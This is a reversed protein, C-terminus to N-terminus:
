WNSLLNPSNTCHASSRQFTTIVVQFSLFVSEWVERRCNGELAKIFRLSILAETYTNNCQSSWLATHMWWGEGPVQLLIFGNDVAASLLVPIRYNHSEFVSLLLPTGGSQVALWNFMAAKDWNYFIGCLMYSWYWLVHRVDRVPISKNSKYWAVIVPWIVLNLHVSILCWRSFLLGPYMGELM